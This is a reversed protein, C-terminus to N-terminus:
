DMRRRNSEREEIEGGQEDRNRKANSGSGPPDQLIFRLDAGGSGRDIRCIRLPREKDLLAKYLAKIEKQPAKEIGNQTHPHPIGEPWNEFQCKREQLIKLLNRWPLKDGTDINHSKLMSLFQEKIKVRMEDVRLESPAKSTNCQGTELVFASTHTGGSQLNVLPQQFSNTNELQHLNLEDPIPHNQILHMSGELARRSSLEPNQLSVNHNDSLSSSQDQLPYLQPGSPIPVSSVPPPGPGLFKDYFPLSFSAHNVTQDVTYATNQTQSQEHSGSMHQQYEYSTNPLVPQHLRVSNNPASIASLDLNQTEM